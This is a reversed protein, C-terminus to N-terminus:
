EAALAPPIGILGLGSAATEPDDRNALLWGQVAAPSLRQHGVAREFRAALAADEPFFRGFLRRATPASILGMGVHVDARGPRILAPDLREIHNTTMVLARGEQAGVGDIANLLGSFSIGGRQDGTERQRFVPPRAVGKALAAIRIGGDANRRSGGM